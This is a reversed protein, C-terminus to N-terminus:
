PYLQVILWPRFKPFFTAYRSLKLFDRLFFCVAFYSETDSKIKYHDLPQVPVSQRKGKSKVKGDKGKPAADGELITANQALSAAQKALEELEAEGESSTVHFELGAFKNEFDLSETTGMPLAVSRAKAVAKTRDAERAKQRAEQEDQHRKRWLAGGLAGFASNLADIFALHGENSKQINERDPHSVCLGSWFEYAATRARIVEDFLTFIFPPVEQKAEAIAQSLLVLGTTTIEPSFANAQAHRAAQAAKKKHKPNNNKPKPPAFSPACSSATTVIWRILTSTNKKYQLYSSHQSAPLTVTTAM